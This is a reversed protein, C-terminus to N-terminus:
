RRFKVYDNHLPEILLSALTVETRFLPFRCMSHSSLDVGTTRFTVLSPGPTSLGQRGPIVGEGVTAGAVVPAMGLVKIDGAKGETGRLGLGGEERGWLSTM